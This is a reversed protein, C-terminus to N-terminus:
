AKHAIDNRKIEALIADLPAALLACEVWIRWIAANIPDPPLVPAMVRENDSCRQKKATEEQRQKDEALAPKPLVLDASVATQEVVLALKALAATCEALEQCRQECANNALAKEWVTTKHCRQKKALVLEALETAQAAAKHRCRKNALSSEASMATQM